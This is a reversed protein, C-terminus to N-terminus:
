LADAEEYKATGSETAGLPIEAIPTWTYYGLDLDQHMRVALFRGITIEVREPRIKRLQRNFRADHVDPTRFYALTSHPWYRGGAERLQVGPVASVAERVLSNIAALPEEPYMAVTVASPGPWVPGMTVTAPTAHQAADSAARVAREVQDQTLDHHVGQVTWHVWEAPVTGVRDGYEALLDHYARTYEVYTPDDLRAVFHLYPSGQWMRRATFFSEM